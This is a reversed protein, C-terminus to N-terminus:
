RKAATLSFVAGQPDMASVAWAGGPVEMPGNIVTAGREKAEDIAADLADVVFYFNWFPAPMEPMKTMIGGIDREENAFLQYTGMPGMDMGQSTKWGFLKTYFATAEKEDGAYLENWGVTGPSGPQPMDPMPGDPMNPQFIYIIAGHPDAVVAFRGIQPVDTPPMHVSGGADAFAQAKADVDAVFVYGMWAPRAGGSMMEPTLKMMGAAPMEFGPINFLYYPEGGATTNDSRRLTWGVVAEYFAGAAEPDATMLEYWIFNGEGEM